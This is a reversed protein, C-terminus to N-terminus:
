DDCLDVRPRHQKKAKTPSPSPSATPQRVAPGGDDVRPRAPAPEVRPKQKELSPAKRAPVRPAAPRPPAPRPGPKFAATVEFRECPEEDDDRVADCGAVLAVLVAFVLLGGTVAQVTRERESM